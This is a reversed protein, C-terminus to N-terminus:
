ALDNSFKSKPDSMYHMEPLFNKPPLSNRGQPFTCANENDFSPMGADSKDSTLTKVVLFM